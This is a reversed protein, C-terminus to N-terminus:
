EEVTHRRVEHNLRHLQRRISHLQESNGAAVAADRKQRLTRMQAKIHGKDFGTAAHHEHTTLNLAKALVQLLHDKNLQTYGQVAPHPELGKAIERLEHVNKAKLDHFTYTTTM